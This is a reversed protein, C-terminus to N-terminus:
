LTFEELLDIYLLSFPNQNQKEINLIKGEDKRLFNLIIIIKLFPSKGASETTLVTLTWQILCLNMGLQPVLIRSVHPM